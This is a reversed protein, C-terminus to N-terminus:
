CAWLTHSFEQINVFLPDELRQGGRSRPEHAFHARRFERLGDHSVVRVNVRTTQASAERPVLPSVLAVLVAVLMVTRM